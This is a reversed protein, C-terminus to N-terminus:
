PLRAQRSLALGALRVAGAVPEDALLSVEVDPMARAVTDRAAQSFAQNRFLGGALVVPLHSPQVLEGTGEQEGRGTLEGPDKLEGAATEALEAVARAACESIEAAAPDKCDLVLRAYRAWTGPVHPQEFYGRHLTALDESGTAAFLLRGLEGPPQGHDRRRLLVRLSERVIWYGSGPDGLLYGWGGVQVTREGWSGVAVSGTGCIVAVGAALGAAPLVLMADSVIVVTGSRTLPALQGHLFQRAGPVSLGASGVCVADVPEGPGVRASALLAALASSAAQLGVAPLSASSAQSEAAIQGGAWLRARSSTGGIDIGLLRLGDRSGADTAPPTGPSAMLDPKAM